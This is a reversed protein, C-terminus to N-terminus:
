ATLQKDQRELSRSGRVMYTGGSSPHERSSEYANDNDQRGPNRCRSNSASGFTPGSAGGSSYVARRHAVYQSGEALLYKADNLPKSSFSVVSSGILDKAGAHDTPKLNAKSTEQSGFNCVMVREMEM